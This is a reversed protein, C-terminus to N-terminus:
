WRFAGKWTLRKKTRKRRGNQRKGERPKEEALRGWGTLAKRKKGCGGGRKGKRLCSFLKKGSHVGELRKKKRMAKV